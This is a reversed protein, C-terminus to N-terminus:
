SAEPYKSPVPFTRTFYFSEHFFQEPNFYAFGVLNFILLHRKTLWWSERLLAKPGFDL